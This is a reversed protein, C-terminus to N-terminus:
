FGFTRVLQTNTWSSFWGSNECDCYGTIPSTKLKHITQAGSGKSEYHDMDAQWANYFLGNSAWHTNPVNGRWDGWYSGASSIGFQSHYGLVGDDEGPPDTYWWGDYGGIAYVPRDVDNYGYSRPSNALTLGLVANGFLNQKADTSSDKDFFFTYLDNLFKAASALEAGGHVGDITWVELIRNRATTYVPNYYPDTTDSQALIEDMVTAGMSYAVVTLPKGACEASNGVDVIKQAVIPASDWYYPDRGDYQIYRVRVDSAALYGQSGGDFASQATAESTITKQWDWGHVVAFCASYAHASPAAIALTALGVM